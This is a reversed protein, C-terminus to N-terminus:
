TFLLLLKTATLFYLDNLWEFLLDYRKPLPNEFNGFGCNLGIVITTENLLNSNKRFFDMSTGKYINTNFVFNNNNIQKNADNNVNNECGSMEPGVLWLNVESVKNDLYYALENWCNTERLIREEAKASCGICM